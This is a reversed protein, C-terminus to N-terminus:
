PRNRGTAGHRATRSTNRGEAERPPALSFRDGRSRRKNIGYFIGDNTAHRRRNLFQDASGGIGPANGLLCDLQGYSFGPGSVPGPILYRGCQASLRVPLHKTAIKAGGLLPPDILRRCARTSHRKWPITGGALLIDVQRPSLRYQMSIPDGHDLAVDREGSGDHLTRHLQTIRLTTGKDIRERDHPDAFTLPPVGFNALNEAHIRAISEALVVRLGLARPAPAAQERSSGQGYNRGAAIARDGAERARRVYSEDIPGFAKEIMGPLNSWLSMGEVGAPMIADTTVHDDVIILVLIELEDPLPEFDHIDVHNRGKIPETSGDDSPAVLLDNVTSNAEPESLRPYPM